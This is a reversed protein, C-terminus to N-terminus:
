TENKPLFILFTSGKGVESEVHITGNHLEVLDKAISLGLGTGSIDKV